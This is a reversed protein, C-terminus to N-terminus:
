QRQVIQFNTFHEYFILFYEELNIFGLQALYKIGVKVKVNFKEIAKHLEKKLKIQNEIRSFFKIGERDL